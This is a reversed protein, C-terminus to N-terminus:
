KCYGYITSGDSLVYEIRCGHESDQASYLPPQKTVMDQTIKKILGTSVLEELNQPSKKYTTYFRKLATDYMEIEFKRAEDAAQDRHKATYKDTQLKDEPTQFSPGKPLYPALALSRLYYFGGVLFLMGVLLLSGLIIFIKKM